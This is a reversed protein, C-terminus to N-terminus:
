DKIDSDSEDENNSKDQDIADLHDIWLRDITRLYVIRELERMVEPKQQKERHEYAKVLMDTLLRSIKESDKMEPRKMCRLLIMLM